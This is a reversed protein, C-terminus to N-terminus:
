FPPIDLTGQVGQSGEHKISKTANQWKGCKECFYRGRKPQWASYLEIEERTTYHQCQLLVYRSLDREIAAKRAHRGAGSSRPAPRLQEAPSIFRM